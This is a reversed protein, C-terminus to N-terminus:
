TLQQSAALAFNFIEGGGWHSKLSKFYFYMYVIFHLCSVQISLVHIPFSLPSISSDKKKRELGESLPDSLYVSGPSWVVM